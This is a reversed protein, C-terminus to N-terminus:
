KAQQQMKKKGTSFKGIEERQSVADPGELKILSDAENVYYLLSMNFISLCAMVIAYSIITCKQTTSFIWYGATLHTHHM